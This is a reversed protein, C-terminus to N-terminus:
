TNLIFLVLSCPIIFRDFQRNSLSLKADYVEPYVEPHDPDTNVAFLESTLTEEPPETVTPFPACGIPKYYLVAKYAESSDCYNENM